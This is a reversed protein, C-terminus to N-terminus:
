SNIKSYEKAAWLYVITSESGYNTSVVQDGIWDACAGEDTILNQKMINNGYFWDMWEGAKTNYLEDQFYEHAKTLLLVMFASDIPQQGYIDRQTDGLQQWKRNGVPAPIVGIRMHKELTQISKLIVEEFHADKTKFAELYTLLAYPIIANAYTLLPEFWNFSENFQNAITNALIGAHEKDNLLSSAILTYCQTRIYTSEYLITKNLNDLLSQVRDIEFNQTKAYALAWFALAHADQSSRYVIPERHENFFGTFLDDNLSKELYSLCVNANDRKNYLLYVILARASDDLAYGESKLIQGNEFFQWVGFQDTLKELHTTQPRSNTNM